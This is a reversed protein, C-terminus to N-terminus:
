QRPDSLATRYGVPIGRRDATSAVGGHSVQNGRVLSATTLWPQTHEALSRTPGPDPLWHALSFLHAINAFIQSVIPGVDRRKTPAFGQRNCKCVHTLASDIDAKPLLASM